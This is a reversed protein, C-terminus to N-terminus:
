EIVYMVACSVPGTNWLRLDCSPRLNSQFLLVVSFRCRFASNYYLVAWGIPWFLALNISIWGHWEIQVKLIVHCAFQHPHSHPCFHRHAIFLQHFSIISIDKSLQLLSPSFMLDKVNCDSTHFYISSTTIIHLCIIEGLRPHKHSKQVIQHNESNDTSWFGFQLKLLWNYYSLVKWIRLHARVWIHLASMKLRRKAQNFQCCQLRDQQCWLMNFIFVQSQTTLGGIM